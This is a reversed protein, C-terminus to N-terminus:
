ITCKNLSSALQLSLSSIIIEKKERYKTGDEEEEEEELVSARMETKVM